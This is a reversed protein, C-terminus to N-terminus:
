LLCGRLVKAAAQLVDDWRLPQGNGYDLRLVNGTCHVAIVPNCSTSERCVDICTGTVFRVSNTLTRAAEADGCANVFSSLSELILSLV